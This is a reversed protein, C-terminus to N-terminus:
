ESQATHRRFEPLEQDPRGARVQHEGVGGAPDPRNAECVVGAPVGGDAVGGADGAFLSDSSQHEGVESRRDIRAMSLPATGVNALPADLSSGVARPSMRTATM